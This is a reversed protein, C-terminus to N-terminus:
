SPSQAPHRSRDCERAVLHRTAERLEVAPADLVFLEMAFETKSIEDLGEPEHAPDCEDGFLHIVMGFPRVDVVADGDIEHGVVDAAHALEIELERRVHVLHHALHVCRRELDAREVGSETRLDHARIGGVGEVLLGVRRNACGELAVADQDKTVNRALRARLVGEDGEGAAEAAQDGKVVVLRRDRSMGLDHTDAVDFLAPSRDPEGALLRDGPMVVMGVQLAGGLLAEQVGDLERGVRRLGREDVHGRREVHYGHPTV